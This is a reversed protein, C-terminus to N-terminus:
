LIAVKEIHKWPDLHSVLNNAYELDSPMNIDISELSNMVFPIAHPQHFTNYKFIHAPYSIFISGNVMYIYEQGQRQNNLEDTECWYELCGKKIFRINNIHKGTNVVSVLSSSRQQWFIKLANQLTEPLRLPSTPLLMVVPTTYNNNLGNKDLHYKVVEISHVDDTSLYDPRLPIEGIGHSLAIELIESSDTSIIINSPCTITKAANLTWVFLPLSGLLAINKRPISKSGGRAPIIVLPMTSDVDKM